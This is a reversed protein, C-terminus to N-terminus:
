KRDLLLNDASPKTPAPPTAVPKNAQRLPAAGDGAPKVPTPAVSPAALALAPPDTAAAQPVSAAQSTPAASAEVPAAAVNGATVSTPTHSLRVAALAGVGAIAACALLITTTRRRKRGDATQWTAVTEALGTSSHVADVPLSPTPASAAAQVPALMGAPAGIRVLRDIALRSEPSAFPRMAAALEGVTQPRKTADKELCRMVVTEFAPPIEARRDRLPVPPDAAIKLCLGTV